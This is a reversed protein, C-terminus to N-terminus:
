FESKQQQGKKIAAASGEEDAKDILTKAEEFAHISAAVGIMGIAYGDILTERGRDLPVTVGLFIDGCEAPLQKSRETRPLRFLIWENKRDRTGPAMIGACHRIDKIAGPKRLTGDSDYSWYYRGSDKHTPTGYKDLLTKEFAGLTPRNSGTLTEDRDVAAIGNHGPDPTFLTYFSRRTTDDKYADTEFRSIFQTNPVPGRLENSRLVMATEKYTKRLHDSILVRSKFIERAKDPTMGIRLGFVDPGVGESSRDNNIPVEGVPIPFATYMKNSSGTTTPSAHQPSNPKGGDSSTPFTLIQTPVTMAQDIQEKTCSVIGVGVALVIFSQLLWGTKM